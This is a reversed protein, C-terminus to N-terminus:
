LRIYGRTADYHMIWVIAWSRLTEMITKNAGM